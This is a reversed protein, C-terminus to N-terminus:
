AWTAVEVSNAFETVYRFEQPDLMGAGDFEVLYGAELGSCDLLSVVGIHRIARDVTVMADALSTCFAKHMDNGETQQFGSKFVIYYRIYVVISILRVLGYPYEFPLTLSASYIAHHARIRTAHTM